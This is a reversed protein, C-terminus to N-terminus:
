FKLLTKIKVGGEGILSSQKNGKLLVGANNIRKEVFLRALKESDTMGGKYAKNLINAFGEFWGIGNWSAYIFNFLLRGDSEILTKLKSDKIYAKILKNYEPKIIEAALIILEERLPDPPIYLWPWKVLGSTEADIKSWFKKGAPTLNIKDGAKRDIGFMTEGSTSYEPAGTNHYEPNYYGGELNAIVQRTVELFDVVEKRVPSSKIFTSTLKLFAYGGKNINGGNSSSSSGKGFDKGLFFSRM